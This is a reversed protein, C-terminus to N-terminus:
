MLLANGGVSSIFFAIGKAFYHNCINYFCVNGCIKSHEKCYWTSTDSFFPLM